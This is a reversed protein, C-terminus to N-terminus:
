IASITRLITGADLTFFNNDDPFRELNHKLTQNLVKTTIGHIGAHEAGLIVKQGDMAM